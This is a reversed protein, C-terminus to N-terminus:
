VYLAEFVTCVTFDRSQSNFAAFVPLLGERSYEVGLIVKIEPMPYLVPYSFILQPVRSPSIM